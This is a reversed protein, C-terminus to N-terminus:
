PFRSDDARLDLGAGDRCESTIRYEVSAGTRLANETLQQRMLQRAREDSL